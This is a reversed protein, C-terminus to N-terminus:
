VEKEDQTEPPTAKPKDAKKERSQKPKPTEKAPKLIEVNGAKAYLTATSAPLSYVEGVDYAVRDIGNTSREFAVLVKVPVESM